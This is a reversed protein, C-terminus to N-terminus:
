WWGVWSFVGAVREWFGEWGERSVPRILVAVVLVLAVAGVVVGAGRAWGWWLLMLYVVGAAILVSVAQGLRAGM